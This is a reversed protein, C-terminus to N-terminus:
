SKKEKSNKLSRPPASREIRQPTEGQGLSKIYTILQQLEEEGVGDNELDYPPMIPEFGDVIDADPYLISRRLYDEDAIVTRGDKLHVERGFLGELVPARAQANMSHCTLCELKRFLRGGKAALSDDPGRDLWREFDARPMVVVTGIMASHNTGCYQDCFIHYEGPKTAEFWTTTYRGPLVDQKIRFAPIAFDHIVDQSILTLRVPRGVPVHLRNIERQGSQHQIKWMWQKGVVYIEMCNEPPCVIDFFLKTGWYFMLMALAFPIGTWLVELRISGHIAAPWQNEPRRRYKVAFFIILGAILVSFFGSVALLFFFLQDVKEAHTSAQDPLLQLVAFM